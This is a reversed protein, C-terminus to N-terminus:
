QVDLWTYFETWLSDLHACSDHLVRVINVIRNKQMVQEQYVPNMDRTPPQPGSGMALEDYRMKARKMQLIITLNRQKAVTGVQVEMRRQEVSREFQSCEEHNQEIAQQLQALQTERQAIKQEGM